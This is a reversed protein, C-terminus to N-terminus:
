EYILVCFLRVPSSPNARGDWLSYGGSDLGRIDISMRTPSFYVRVSGLLHDMMRVVNPNWDGYSPSKAAATKITGGTDSIKFIINNDDLLKKGSAADVVLLIITMLAFVIIAGTLVSRTAWKKVLPAILIAGVCQAAQNIGQAAGVILSTLPCVFHSFLSPNCKTFTNAQKFRDASLTMISGNFFELGLKYFM